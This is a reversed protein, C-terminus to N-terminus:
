NANEGKFVTPISMLLIKLDLWLSWNRIYYLDYSVRTEMKEPTRTEGRYGHVQAWGTIGPKVRHRQMYGRISGRYRDNLWLPHPRPGVLSLHGQVVQVVQPLEDLSWRRLIAGILTVRPDNKTAQQPVEQGDQVYMTRFKWVEITEGNLGHRKQKFLLPGPSSVKLAIGIILLLPSILVLILMGLLFDELWKTFHQGVSLPSDSLCLIPQGDIERVGPSILQFVSLDPVWNVEVNLDLLRQVLSAVRHTEVISLTLYVRDIKRKEVLDVMDTIAGLRPLIRHDGLSPVPPTSMQPALATALRSPRVVAETTHGSDEDSLYGELEIGLWANNVINAAFAQLPPGNGVLVARSINMGRRRAAHLAARIVGHTVLQSTSVIAIWMLLVRKEQLGQDLMDFLQEIALLVALVIMMNRLLLRCETRMSRTRVHHYFGSHPYILLAILGSIIALGRHEPPIAGLTLFAATLWSATVLLADLLLWLSGLLPYYQRFVGRWMPSEIGLGHIKQDMHLM